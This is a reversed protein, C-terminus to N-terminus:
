KRMTLKSCDTTRMCFLDRWTNTYKVYPRDVTELWISMTTVLNTVINTVPNTVPNTVLNTVLNTM